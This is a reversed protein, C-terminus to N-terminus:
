ESIELDHYYKLPPLKRIVEGNNWPPGVEVEMM